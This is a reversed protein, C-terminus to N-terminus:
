VANYCRDQEVYFTEYLHYRVPVCRMSENVMEAKGGGM